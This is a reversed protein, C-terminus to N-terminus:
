DDLLYDWRFLEADLIFGQRILPRNSKNKDAFIACAYWINKGANLGMAYGYYDCVGNISEWHGPSQRWSNFMERAAEAITNHDWSEAVDERFGKCDPMADELWHYRQEWQHHGQVGMEAQLKAIREAMGQLTPHPQGTELSKVGINRGAVAILVTDIPVSM